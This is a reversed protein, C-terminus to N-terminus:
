DAVKRYITRGLLEFDSTNRVLSESHGVILYGGKILHQSFREVLKAQTPKDFYIMVNRCFILDFQNKIPWPQMLNLKRFVLLEQLSPKVKVKGNLEGSGMQFWQKVRGADIGDVRDLNYVGRQCKELVESDIDTCLVKTDWKDIDRIVERLTIAISYPEEGTSCGASWMRIRKAGNRERRVVEPIFTDRMFEFHHNERFFSTLNTTVANTFLEVETPDGRKLLAAYDEFSGLKLAEMRSMIRREVLLRKAATMAIGTLQYILEMVYEFQKDTLLSAQGKADSKALVSSM